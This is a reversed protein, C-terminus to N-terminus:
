TSKVALDLRKLVQGIQSQRFAQYVAKERSSILARAMGAEPQM